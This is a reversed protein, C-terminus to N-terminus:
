AMGKGLFILLLVFAAVAVLAHIVVLTSPLRRGRLHFSILVIGGLAAVVFLAISVVTLTSATATAASIIFLILATAALLGHVVALALPLPKGAFHLSALVLGGLAAVAFLITAVTLM